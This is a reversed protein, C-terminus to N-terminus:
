IFGKEKIIDIPSKEVIVTDNPLYKRFVPTDYRSDMLVIACRDNSSRIGRGAAQMVKIMTPLVQSYEFGNGTKRDYYMQMAKLKISPPEFPVGVIGILRVMNNKIGISESFNGNIVAFLVSSSYSLRDMLEAKKEREMNKEERIIRHKFGSEQYVKDM